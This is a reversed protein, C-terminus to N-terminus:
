QYEIQVNYLRLSDGPENFWAAIWYTCNNNQILRHAAMTDHTSDVQHEVSGSTGTLGSEIHFVDDQTTMSASAVWHNM